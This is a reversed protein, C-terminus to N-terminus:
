ATFFLRLVDAIPEPRGYTQAADHDLGPLRVVTGRPLVGDLLEATEAFVPHSRAGHVLLVDAALHRYEDLTGETRMVLDLEAPLADLLDRVPVHDVRAPEIRLLVDAIRTTPGDPLAQLVAAARPSRAPV